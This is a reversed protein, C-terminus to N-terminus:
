DKLIRSQHTIRLTRNKTQECKAAHYNMSVVSDGLLTDLDLLSSQRVLERPLNNKPLRM